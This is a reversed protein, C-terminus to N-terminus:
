EQPRLATRPATAAAAPATLLPPRPRRAAPPPEWKKFYLAPRGAPYLVLPIHLLVATPETNTQSTLKPGSSSYIYSPSKSTFTSVRRHLFRTM